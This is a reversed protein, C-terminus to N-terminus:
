PLQGVASTMNPVTESFIGALWSSGDLMNVVKITSDVYVQILPMYKLIKGLDLCIEKSHVGM